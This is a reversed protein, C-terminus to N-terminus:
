DGRGVEKTGEGNGEEELLSLYLVLGDRRSALRKGLRRALSVKANQLRVLEQETECTVPLWEGPELGQLGEIVARYKSVQPGRHQVTLPLTKTKDGIKM